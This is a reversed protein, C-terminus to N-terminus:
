AVPWSTPRHAIHPLQFVLEILDFTSTFFILLALSYIAWFLKRRFMLRLSARAM